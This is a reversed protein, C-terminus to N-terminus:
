NLDAKQLLSGVEKKSIGTIICRYDFGNINLITIDSLSISMM